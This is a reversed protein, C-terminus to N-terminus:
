RSLEGQRPITLTVRTGTGVSSTLSISGGLDEVAEAVLHLGIGHGDVHHAADQEAHARVRLDFVKQQMAEDIGLGNDEITLVLSDNDSEDSCRISVISRASDPDSYKIANSVLNTLILKLKATEVFVTGLDDEVEMFVSRSSMSDKLQSAVDRAMASVDVRQSIMQSGTTEADSRHILTQLNNLMSSAQDISTRTALLGQMDEDCLEHNEMLLDVNLLAAQLPSRLEHSVFSNFSTLNETTRKIQELYNEVFTDVTAQLIGRVVRYVTALVKLSAVPDVPGDWKRTEDVVFEELLIALADYERLLQNVSANQKFRLKGLEMAKRTIVANTLALEEDSDAVIDGIQEIMSPVHDLYTETPFVDRADEFVIDALMHLWRDSIDVSSASLSAAVHSRYASDDTTM